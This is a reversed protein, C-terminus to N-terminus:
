WFPRPAPHRPRNQAQAHLPSARDHPQNSIVSASGSASSLVGQPRGPHRARAAPPTSCAARAPGHFAAPRPAWKLAHLWASHGCSRKLSVRGVARHIPKSCDAEGRSAATGRQLWKHQLCGAGAGCLPWLGMGAQGWLGSFMNGPAGAWQLPLRSRRSCHLLRSCRPLRSCSLHPRAFRAPAAQWWVQRAAGGAGKM